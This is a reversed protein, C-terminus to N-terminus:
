NLGLKPRQTEAWKEMLDYVIKRSLNRRHKYLLGGIRNMVKKDAWHYPMVHYFLQEVVRNPNQLASIAGELIQLETHM